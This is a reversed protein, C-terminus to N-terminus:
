RFRELYGDWDWTSLFKEAAAYGKAYLAEIENDSIDFDLFGVDTSDVRIARANVWPQSLYAQDRGVIVTTIVSELLHPQGLLRIPALAPIVRDNGEPLNPLVTVGFSPWRPRRRDARDLSDIPFNSLIGGDVLTSTLGGAGTLTVPRFFFPISMSARVADAVSQEDPDLGYVRRYDWPLRVLQGTTVDAVTVVLKYRQEAPLNDDDIALDGFTRVGLNKLQSRVWDHAYDGKYVGTGRLVALSPGLVPLRELTGPDTFKHYDLQLALEKVEEPGLQNGMAAAAVVAGVISGASTGSVRQARYGAEMLAVVAGVLGIGKVGGGSLVLDAPKPEAV